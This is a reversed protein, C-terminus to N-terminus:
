PRRILDRWPDLSIHKLLEIAVHLLLYDCLEGITYALTGLHYRAVRMHTGNM